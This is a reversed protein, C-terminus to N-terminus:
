IVLYLLGKTQKQRSCRHYFTWSIYGEMLNKFFGWINIKPRDTNLM